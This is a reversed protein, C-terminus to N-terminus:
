KRKLKYLFLNYDKIKAKLQLYKYLPDLDSIKVKELNKMLIKIEIVIVIVIPLNFM